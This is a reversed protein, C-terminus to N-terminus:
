VALVQELLVGPVRAFESECRQVYSAAVERSQWHGHAQVELETCGWAAATASGIRLSHLGYDRAEQDTMGLEKIWVKFLNRANSYLIM